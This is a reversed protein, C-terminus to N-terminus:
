RETVYIAEKLVNETIQSKLSRRTVLDVKKDFLDELYFKLGMYGDFTAEGKFEVLFDLDSDATAENRATSGFLALTKIQFKEFLNLQERLTQIVKESNLAKENTPKTTRSIM